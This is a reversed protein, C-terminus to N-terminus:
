APGKARAEDLHEACNLLRVTWPAEEDLVTVSTNVWGALRMAHEEPVEALRGVVSACVLGHTVVALHGGTELATAAVRMWAADVRAHFVDWSEGNPPEYDSAFPDFDFESYPRGRLDGLNRERLLPESEVIVGTSQELAAATMAARAYDSALIRTIGADALREALRAAQDLGNESLPTDPHQVVRGANFATEGHRILHIAM